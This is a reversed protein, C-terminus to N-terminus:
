SQQASSDAKFAGLRLYERGFGGYPIVSGQTRQLGAEVAACIRPPSGMMDVFTLDAEAIRETLTQRKEPTMDSITYFLSVTLEVGFEAKLEREARLLSAIAPPSVTAFVLKM